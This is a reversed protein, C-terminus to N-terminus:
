VRPRRLFILVALALLAAAPAARRADGDAVSCQKCTCGGIFAPRLVTARCTGPDAAIPYAACFADIDDQELTAKKTEPVGAEPPEQYAYMTADLIEQPASGRDCSPAVDGNQDIAPRDPRETCNHDLGVLHGLEHTLTNALDAPTRSSAQTVGQDQIAFDVGNLEVDADMITGDKPDGMRDIYFVTTVGAAAPDYCTPEECAERAPPCWRDERFKIMNVGDYAVELNQPAGVNIKLYGCGATMQEWHSACERIVDMERLGDIHTTGDAAPTVITCSAEWHLPTGARTRSPVYGLLLPLRQSGVISHWQVMGVDGVVGGPV